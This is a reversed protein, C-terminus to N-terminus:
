HIARVTLASVRAISWGQTRIARGPQGPCFVDMMAPSLSGISYKSRPGSLTASGDAIDIDLSDCADLAKHTHMLIVAGDENIVIDIM